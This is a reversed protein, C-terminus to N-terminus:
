ANGGAAKAQKALRAVVAADNIRRNIQEVTEWVRIKEGSQLVIEGILPRFSHRCFTRICAIEHPNVFVIRGPEDEVYERFEIVDWRGAARAQEIFAEMIPVQRMRGIRQHEPVSDWAVALSRLLAQAAALEQRLEAVDSLGIDIGKAMALRYQETLWVTFEQSDIDDPIQASPSSSRHRNDISYEIQDPTYWDCAFEWATKGNLRESM